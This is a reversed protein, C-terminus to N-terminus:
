HCTDGCRYFLPRLTPYSPDSRQAVPLGLRRTRASCLQTQSHGLKQTSPKATHHHHHDFHIIPWQHGFHVPPPELPSHFFCCLALVPITRTCFCFGNARWVSQVETHTLPPDSHCRSVPDQIVNDTIGTPMRHQLVRIYTLSVPKM